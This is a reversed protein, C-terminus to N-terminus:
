GLSGDLGASISAMIIDPKVARLADYGLGLWAMVGPSFDEIVEDCRAALRQRTAVKIVEAGMDTPAMGTIAGVRAWGFDLVRCGALVGPNAM